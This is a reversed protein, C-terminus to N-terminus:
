HVEALSRRIDELEARDPVDRMGALDHRDRDRRAEDEIDDYIPRSLYDSM